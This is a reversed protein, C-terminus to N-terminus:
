GPPRGFYRWGQILPMTVGCIASMARLRCGSRICYSAKLVPVRQHRRYLRGRFPDLVATSARSSRDQLNSQFVLISTRSVPKRNDEIREAATKVAAMLPNRSSLAEYQMRLPHLNRAMDAMQPTVM